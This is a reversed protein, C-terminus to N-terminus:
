QVPQQWSYLFVSIARLIILHLQPSLFETYMPWWVISVTISLNDPAPLPIPSPSSARLLLVRLSPSFLSVICPVYSELQTKLFPCTNIALFPLSSIRPSFFIYLFELCFLKPMSLLNLHNTQNTNICIYASPTLLAHTNIPLMTEPLNWQLPKCASSFFCFIYFLLLFNMIIISCDLSLGYDYRYSDRRRNGDLACLTEFDKASPMELMVALWDSNSTSVSVLLVNSVILFDSNM